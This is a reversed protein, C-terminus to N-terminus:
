LDLEPLLQRVADRLFPRRNVDRDIIRGDWVVLDLDIPRPSYKDGTRVRGLAAEIQRLRRRTASEDMDTEILWAGNLYPPQGPPGIPDTWVFRSEALLRFTGAVHERAAGVHREPAINSGVAIVAQHRDTCNM